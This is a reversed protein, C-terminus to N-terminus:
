PSAEDLSPRRGASSSTSPVTSVIGSSSLVSMIRKDLCNYFKEFISKIEEMIKMVRYNFELTNNKVDRFLYM